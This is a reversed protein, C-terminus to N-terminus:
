PVCQLIILLLSAFKNQTKQLPSKVTRIETLDPACKEVRSPMGQKNKIKIIMNVQQYRATDATKLELVFM